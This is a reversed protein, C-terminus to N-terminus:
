NHVHVDGNVQTLNHSIQQGPEELDSFPTQPASQKASESDFLIKAAVNIEHAARQSVNMLKEQMECDTTSEYADKSAEALAMMHSTTFLIMGRAVSIAGTSKVSQGLTRLCKVDKSKIKTLGLEKAADDVEEDTIPPLPPNVNPIKLSGVSRGMPALMESGNEM